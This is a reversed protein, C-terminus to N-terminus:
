DELDVTVAGGPRERPAMLLNFPVIATTPRETSAFAALLAGGFGVLTASGLMDAIQLAAANFGRENAPSLELVLLNVAPYGFGM